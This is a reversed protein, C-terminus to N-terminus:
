FATILSTFVSRFLFLIKLPLNVTKLPLFGYADSANSVLIIYFGTSLNWLSITLVSTRTNLASSCILKQSHGPLHGIIVKVLM